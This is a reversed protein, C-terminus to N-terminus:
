PPPPAPRASSVVRRIAWVVLEPDEQPLAHGSKTTLTFTGDDSQRALRSLWGTRLRVWADHCDRPRCPEGAWPAEEFRTAMLVAIPVGSPAPLAHFEAFHRDELDLAVRMEAGWARLQARRRRALEPVDEARHGRAVYYALAEEETRMDTPDVYVLGAVERPHLAAFMRILPGGWSHGVLVYPGKLRLETLLRRLRQAVHRPTPPQEDPESEGVGARDYAMVPAFAAVGGFVRDWGELRGGLGSELVVTPGGHASGATQVRTRYGDLAVIRPDQAQVVSGAACALTALAARLTV